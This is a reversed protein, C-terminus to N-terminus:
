MPDDEDSALLQAIPIYGSELGFTLLCETPGQVMIRRSLLMSMRSIRAAISARTGNMSSQLVSNLLTPPKSLPQVVTRRTANTLLSTGKQIQVRQQLVRRGLEGVSRFM